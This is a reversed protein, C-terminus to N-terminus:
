EFIVDVPMGPKLSGDANNVKLEIAYVTTQREEKTQVNRPTYEAQDAIRTVIATFADNPFSDTTFSVEDGINVEGYRDESLYVTITLENLNAIVMTTGGAQAVEGVHVSRTLIVGDMPAQVILKDMQINITDLAAQAAAVNSRALDLQANAQDIAAAATQVMPENEGTQLERLKDLASDYTEQAIVADARAEIVDNAGDTTLADDYDKQADDLDIKKEDYNVQASDRLTQSDSTGSTSDLVDKANQFAVRAQALEAEIQIFESSGAKSETDELKTMADDLAEKASDVEDQTAKMRETKSFYWIPQDFESPKAQDWIELRTTAEEALAADLTLDYQLQAADLAAQAADVQANASDLAAQASQKESLLLSDDLKLLPDGTQVADGESAYVDVVRGSLEPAISIETAEIQGSAQLAESQTPACGVVTLLAAIV